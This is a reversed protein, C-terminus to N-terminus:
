GTVDTGNQNDSGSAPSELPLDDVRFETLRGASGEDVRVLIHWGDESETTEM